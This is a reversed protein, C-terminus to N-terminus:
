GAFATNLAPVQPTTISEFEDGAQDLKRPAEEVQSQTPRGSYFNVAGYLEGLHERLKKEGTVM